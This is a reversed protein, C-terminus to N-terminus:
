FIGCGPALAERNYCSLSCSQQILNKLAFIMDPTFDEVSSGPQQHPPHFGHPDQAGHQSAGPAHCLSDLDHCRIHQALAEVLHLLWRLKIGRMDNWLQSGMKAIKILRDVALSRAARVRHAKSFDQFLKFGCQWFEQFAASKLLQHNLEYGQADMGRLTNALLEYACHVNSDECLAKKTAQLVSQFNVEM